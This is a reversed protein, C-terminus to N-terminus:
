ETTFGLRMAARLIYSSAGGEPNRWYDLIRAVYGRTERYPPIGRYKEVAGPGANYAALALPVSGNFRELQARLYRAGGDINLEPDYRDFVGLARATTPMLQTLGSAGVRSTASESYSSEAIVLADLLGAPLGHRCEAAAVSAWHLQRRRLVERSLGGRREPARDACADGAAEPAQHEKLFFRNMEGAVATDDGTALEAHEVPAEPAPRARFDYLQVTQASVSTALTSALLLAPKLM